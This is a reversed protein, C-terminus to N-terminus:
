EHEIVEGFISRTNGNVWDDVEQENRQAQTQTVLQNLYGEFKSAQFLTQPRLYKAMEDNLWEACKKDIVTKCQDVTFGDNLRARIDKRSSESYRYSTGAIENLYRIVEDTSYNVSPDKAQRVVAPAKTAVQKPPESMGAFYQEIAASAHHGMDGHRKNNLRLLESAERTLKLTKTVELRM